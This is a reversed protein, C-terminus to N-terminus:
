KVLSGIVFNVIAFALLAVVIGIVAYMITNKATTVKGSDGASVTYLIGGYILMLVSLAGIVFLATNTINTFACGEGFLCGPVNEPEACKAGSEATTGDECVVAGVTSVAPMFLSGLSLLPVALIGALMIKISKKM